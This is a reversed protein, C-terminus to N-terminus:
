VTFDQTRSYLKSPYVNVIYLLSLRLSFKVEQVWERPPYRWQISSSSTMALIQVCSAGPGRRSGAGWRGARPMHVTGVTGVAQLAKWTVAKLSCRHHSGRPSPLHPQVQRLGRELLKEREPLHLCRSTGPHGPSTRLDIGESTCRGGGM